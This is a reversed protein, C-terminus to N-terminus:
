INKFWSNKNKLHVNEEEQSPGFLDQIVTDIYIIKQDYTLQYM